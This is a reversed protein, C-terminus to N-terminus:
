RKSARANLLTRLEMSSAAADWLAWVQEDNREVMHPVPLKVVNPSRDNRRRDRREGPVKETSDVAKLNKSQM